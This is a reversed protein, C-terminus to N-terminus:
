FGLGSDAGRRRHRWYLSLSCDREMRWWDKSTPLEFVTGCGIQAFGLCNTNSGGNLTTGYLNGAADGVLSAAPSAGDTGGTFNHLVQLKPGATFAYIPLMMPAFFVALLLIAKDIHARKM